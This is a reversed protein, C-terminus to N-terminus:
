RRGCTWEQLVLAPIVIGATETRWIRPGLSFPVVGSKSALEIESEAWGGEPGVFVAITQAEPFRHHIDALGTEKEREWAIMRLDAERSRELAQAYAVAGGYRMLQVRGSQEAAEEIIKVIRDERRTSRSACHQSIVPILEHVGIETIKQAIFELKDKKPIGQYLQVQLSSETQVDHFVGVEITCHHGQISGITAEFEGGKGNFVVIQEGESIRLVRILQHARDQPAALIQGTTLPLDLFFRHM